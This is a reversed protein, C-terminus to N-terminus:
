DHRGGKPIHISAITGYNGKGFSIFGGLWELTSKVFFLGYGSHLEGKTTFGKEFIKESLMTDIGMGSDEVEFILDNGIDTAFLIVEKESRFLQRM